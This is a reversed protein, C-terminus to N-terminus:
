ELVAIECRRMGQYRLLAFLVRWRADELGEMVTKTLEADIFHRKRQNKPKPEMRLKAAPTEPLIRSDVASSFFKKARQVHKLRNSFALGENKLYKGWRELEAPTIDALFMDNAFYKLLWDASQQYNNKTREAGLMKAIFDDLFPKLKRHEPNVTTSQGETALASCSRGILEQFTDGFTALPRLIECFTSM